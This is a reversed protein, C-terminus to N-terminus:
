EPKINAFKIVEAWKETEDAIFKGFEAAGMPMPVHGIERMRAKVKAETLGANIERNLTEVVEDACGAPRCYWGM